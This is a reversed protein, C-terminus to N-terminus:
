SGAPLRKPDFFLTRWPRATEMAPPEVGKGLWTKVEQLSVHYLVSEDDRVFRVGTMPSPIDCEGLRAITFDLNSDRM